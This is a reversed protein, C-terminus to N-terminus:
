NKLDQRTDNNFLSNKYNYKKDIKRVIENNFLYPYLMEVNNNDNKINYQYLDSQSSPIYKNESKDLISNQNKLESEIDINTSYNNYCKSNNIINKEIEFCNESNNNLIPFTCKTSQSRLDITNINNNNFFINRELIRKNIENQREFNCVYIQNNM